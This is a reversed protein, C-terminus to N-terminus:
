VANPCNPLNGRHMSELFRLSMRLGWLALFPPPSDPFVEGVFLPVFDLAVLSYPPNWVFCVSNLYSWHNEPHNSVLPLRWLRMMPRVPFPLLLDLCPGLVGRLQFYQAVLSYPPNWVFCVSNLYSWHNEPHNSVLPLFHIAMMQIVQFPLLSDLLVAADV